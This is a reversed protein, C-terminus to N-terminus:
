SVHREDEVELWKVLQQRDIKGNANIPFRNLVYVHRPVMYAPLMAALQTRVTEGRASTAELFGVIGAAGSSSRPWALAVAVDVGAASRLAAEVEGLEVRYGNVKVQSDRRGVFTMPAGAVPRRVLDGTRYFTEQRGPPVVYALATREPDNWYGPTLQPGSMLLEGCSGPSVEQLDEDVVLAQMNPFPEGIPVWDTSAGPSGPEWRHLMCAVTLETPGYLNEVASNPAASAWARAVENPLPEGCFLSWRLEPFQDPGLLGIRKM